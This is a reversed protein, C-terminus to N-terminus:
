RTRRSWGTSTLKGLSPPDDIITIEVPTVSRRISARLMGDRVDKGDFHVLDIDPALWAGAPAPFVSPFAAAKICNPGDGRVRLAARM